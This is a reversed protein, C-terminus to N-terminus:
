RIAEATLEPLSDIVGQTSPGIAEPIAPHQLYPCAPVIPEPAARASSPGSETSGLQTDKPLNCCREPSDHPHLCLSYILEM